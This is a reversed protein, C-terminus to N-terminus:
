PQEVNKLLWAQVLAGLGDADNLEPNEIVAEVLYRQLEGLWPGGKRGTLAMLAKGDLALDKASLPPKEQLIAELKAELEANKRRITDAWERGSLGTPAIEADEWGKGLQDAYRFLTWTNISLGDQEFKRLLRRYSSPAWHEDPHVGHHRVLATVDHILQNSAKLHRLIAETMAVSRGEHAYFHAEGTEDVTRSPPKAVDHLLAAWRLDARGSSEYRLVELTHRWVDYRHHRNQECGVM